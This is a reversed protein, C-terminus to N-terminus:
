KQKPRKFIYIGYVGFDETDLTSFGCLEWGKSGWKALKKHSNNKDWTNHRYLKLKVQKYEFQQFEDM